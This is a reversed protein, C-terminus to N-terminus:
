FDTLDEFGVGCENSGLINRAWLSGGLEDGFWVPMEKLLDSCLLNIILHMIAMELSFTVSHLFYVQMSSDFTVPHLNLSSQDDHVIAPTGELTAASKGSLHVGELEADSAAKVAKTACEQVIPFCQQSIGAEQLERLAKDGTWSPTHSYYDLVEEEVDLSGADRAMDEINSM